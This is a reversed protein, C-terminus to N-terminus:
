PHADVIQQADASWSCTDYGYAGNIVDHGRWFSAVQDAICESDPHDTQGVDYAAVHALEHALLDHFEARNGVIAIDIWTTVVDGERRWNARAHFGDADGHDITVATAAVLRDYRESGISARAAAEFDVAGSADTEVPRPPELLEPNGTFLDSLSPDVVLGDIPRGTSPDILVLGDVTEQMSRDTAGTAGLPGGVVILETRSRNDAQFENWLYRGSSAVVALLAVVM